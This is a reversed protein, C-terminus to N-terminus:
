CEKSDKAGSIFIGKVTAREVSTSHRSHVWENPHCLTSCLMSTMLFGM